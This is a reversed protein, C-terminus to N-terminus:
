CTCVRVCVYIHVSVCMIWAVKYRSLTAWLGKEEGSIEKGRRGRRRSEGRCVQLHIKFKRAGEGLGRRFYFGPPSGDLCFAGRQAAFSSNLLHLSFAGEAAAATATATAAALPSSCLAALLVAASFAAAKSCM